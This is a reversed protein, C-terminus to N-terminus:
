AVGAVYVQNPDGTTELTTGTNQSIVIVFKRPLCGNFVAKVSPCMLWIAAATSTDHSVVAGYRVIQDREETDTITEASETGDFVDPWTSDDVEAVFGLRCQGATVGSGETVLKATVRYDKYRNSSNDIATSEWVVVHTASDALGDLATQTQAASAIYSPGELSVEGIDVGSNATLKGIGNTGAPLAVNTALTVRQVTAGDVGTGGAVGAQGVIPNVKARDTEDWDDLIALSTAIASGSAETVTGTVTVDNNTGLNVLLGDAAVAPILTASGDTAIALKVIQVHGAAGADDTAIVTGDPPTAVTTQFTVTDAM